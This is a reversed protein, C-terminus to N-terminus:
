GHLDEMGLDFRSVMTLLEESLGSLEQASRAMEEMSASQEQTAASVQETAAANDDTVKAIEDMASEIERAGGSQQDSLEAITQAKSRTNLAHETIENFAGGTTDLAEHGSHMMQVSDRMSLQVKQSEERITEVLGTIESASEATSEALKRVEEAVVSFGRGYEGARAAEITANLALLNTKQSIGSIVDVIQGIKQVNDGFDMIQASNREVDMLVQKMKDMASRAMDGGQEATSVTTVAAEKMKQAANAILDVSIVLEKVIKAGKEVMEAQKEAGRSVQEITNSVQHSSASIEQSSASLGQASDSVRHSSRRIQGVLVRLNEALRNLSEALDETEDPFKRQSWAVQTTLDGESFREAAERLLGINSTFAKSFLWGLLLGVVLATGMVVLQELFEPLGLFPALFDVAVITAVVFIFGLTFKYSIEIRM